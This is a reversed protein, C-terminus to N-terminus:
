LIGELRDLAEWFGEGGNKHGQWIEPIFSADPAAENLVRGLRAFDIEGAGVQLGEGDVGQADGLHLHATYPGLTRLFTEFDFGFHNAALKSHSVDVCLRLGGRECVEAMEEAFIFLNQFRQGGFHWPFPAMTQPILEVGEMDLEGLAALFRDYYAPKDAADMPADMSFGGVNAVILPRGTKPFFPKLARTIDIVRQTERISTARYDADPSALDMLHSGAFLEPAHVVFGIEEQRDLFPAPDLDMDKYSLHFEVLDPRCLTLFERFDHYRVPVGWPRRFEYARAAQVREGLDSAYFFDEAAMDRELTRGVLKELNLPPLGKGPSKVAVDERAISQGKKLDRAAVLSKALTERNILEGQSLVKEGGELLSPDGLAPEVERIARVLTAFDDPELSAAHDPGEMTRDATLHREVIQAGLAVAGITVGIGREHGSYGVFPHLARLREMYRLQINQFAAPYTSHCHLLAFDRVHRRAFDVAAAIEDGRWMGTSVILPKGTRGLRELLPLNTLDASATKYAAVELEELRALANEDWPSCMYVLGRAECHAKLQAHRAPTLEFRRLLDLTYEVSLDDDSGELTRKRYVAELDRMQFKACDAGCAAARDILEVALDFDGNHNVGIEAIVFVPKGPGIERGAISFSQRQLATM